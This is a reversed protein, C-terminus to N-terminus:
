CSYNNSLQLEGPPPVSDFAKKIDFFVSCVEQGSELAKFWEHAVSLLATITSRGTQLSWQGSSLVSLSKTIYQHVHRELMKSVVPLLSIPRYNTADKHNSTKPIPVVSSTKWDKPFHGLKISIYFLRTLSPAIRSATGKLMRSAGDPGSAKAADLLRIYSLVESASCLSDDPCADNHAHSGRNPPVLPPVTRNFCTSLFDNLMTAKEHDSNATTGQHHLPPISSQQKNLFKVTKWFKRKDRIDLNKM